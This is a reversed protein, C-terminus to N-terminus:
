RHRRSNDWAKAKKQHRGKEKLENQVDRAM